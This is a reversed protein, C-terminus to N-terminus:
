DKTISLARVQDLIDKVEDDHSKDPEDPSSDNLNQDFLEYLKHHYWYQSLVLSEFIPQLYQLRTNYFAPLEDVLMRHKNGFEEKVPGLEKNLNQKKIINPGTDEKDKMKEVKALVKKYETQAKDYSKMQANLHPFVTTYKKVPNVLTKQLLMNKDQALKECDDMTNELAHIFPYKEASEEGGLVSIDTGVKTSAKGVAATAESLKKSEKLLKKSAEEIHQIRACERAADKEQPLSKRGSTATQLQKFLNWSM